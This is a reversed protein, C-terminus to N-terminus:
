TSVEFLVQWSSFSVYKYFLVRKAGMGRNSLLLPHEEIYETLFIHGECASFDSKQTFAAPPTRPKDSRPLSNAKATKLIHVQLVCCLVGFEKKVEFLIMMMM